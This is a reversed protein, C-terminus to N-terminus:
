GPAGGPGGPELHAWVRGQQDVYAVKAEEKVEWLPYLPSMSQRTPAWVLRIRALRTFGARRLAEEPGLPLHPATGGLRASTRLQETGADIVAVAIPTAAPGLVVLFYAPGNGDIAHVPWARGELTTELDFATRAREVAEEPTLGSM